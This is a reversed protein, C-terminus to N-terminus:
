DTKITDLGLIVVFVYVKLLTDPINYDMKDDRQLLTVATSWLTFFLVLHWCRFIVVSLVKDLYSYGAHHHARVGFPNLSYFSCHTTLDHNQLCQFFRSLGDIILCPLSICRM